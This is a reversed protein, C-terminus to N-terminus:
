APLEEADDVRFIRGKDGKLYLGTDSALDVDEAPDVPAEPEALAYTDTGVRRLLGKDELRKVQADTIGGHGDVYFRKTTANRRLEGGARMLELALGTLASAEIRLAPETATAAYPFLAALPVGGGAVADRAAKESQFRCEPFLDPTWTGAPEAALLDVLEGKRINALNHPQGTKVSLLRALDLLRDKPYGKFFERDPAWDAADVQRHAPAGEDAAWGAIGAALPTDGIEAVHRGWGQNVPLYWSGVREAVLLAFLRRLDAGPLEMIADLWALQAGDGDLDLGSHPRWEGALAGAARARDLLDGIAAINEAPSDIRNEAAPGIPYGESGLKVERAGLLGIIALAMALGDDGAVIRRLTRTKAAHLRAQQDKSLPDRAPAPTEGPTLGQRRAKVAADAEAKRMVPAKVEIKNLRARGGLIVVAGVGPDGAKYADYTSPDHEAYAQWFSEGPKLVEIWSWKGRKRLAEAKAELAGLQLREFEPRDAFFREGTVTDDVIEATYLALDFVAAEIPPRDDLVFERIDAADFPERRGDAAAAAPLIERQRHEAGLALAQAQGLSIAKAALAEKAEPVLRLLALRRFVTRESVHLLRAIAAERTEGENPTVRPRVLAFLEAEDLPTMDERDLNEIAALIVLEDDTCDRVRCPIAYDAPLWGAAVAVCAGAHRREGLIIEFQEGGDITDVLDLQRAPRVLIPQLLGKDAISRGLSEIGEESRSKRPNLPSPRVRDLPLERYQVSFASQMGPGGPLGSAALIDAMTAAEAAAPQETVAPLVAAKRPM